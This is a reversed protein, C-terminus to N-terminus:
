QNVQIDGYSVVGDRGDLLVVRTLGGAGGGAVAIQSASVTFSYFGSAFADPRQAGPDLIEVFDVLDGRRQVAVLELGGSVGETDILFSVAAGSAVPNPSPLELFRVFGLYAPGIRWDSSDRSLVVVGADTIATRTIGQAPSLLADDEFLRQGDATGSDCALAVLPLAVLLLRLTHPM